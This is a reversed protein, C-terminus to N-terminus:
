NMMWSNTGVKWSFNHRKTHMTIPWVNAHYFCDTKQFVLWANAHCIAWAFSRILKAGGDIEDSKSRM